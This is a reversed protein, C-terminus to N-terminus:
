SVLVAAQVLSSYQNIYAEIKLDNVTKGEAFEMTMVYPLM